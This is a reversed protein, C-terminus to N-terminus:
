GLTGVGQVAVAAQGKAPWPLPPPDGAVRRESTATSTAAVAPFPRLLQFLVTGLLLLLLVVIGVLVGWRRRRRPPKNLLADPKM